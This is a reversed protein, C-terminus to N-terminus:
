ERALIWLHEIRMNLIILAYLIHIEEMYWSDDRSRIPRAMYFTTMCNLPMFCWATSSVDTCVPRYVDAVVHSEKEFM